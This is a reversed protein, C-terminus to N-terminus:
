PLPFPLSPPVYTTETLVGFVHPVKRALEQGAFGILNACPVMALYSLIFILLHQQDGLAYRVAIAAPVVPWLINVARGVPSASKFVIRFFHKPHFGARGSEGEPRILRSTTRKMPAGTSNNRSGDEGGDIPAPTQVDGQFMPLTGSRLSNSSSAKKETVSPTTSVAGKEIGDGGSHPRSAM